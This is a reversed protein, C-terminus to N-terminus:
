IEFTNEITTWHSPLWQLDEPEDIDHLPADIHFSWGLQKIRSLTQTLVRSTSWEIDEFLSLHFKNLGLLTYGGDTAPIIFADLTSLSNAAYRLTTADLAPCDTGIFIVAEGKAIYEQAIRALRAGLDGEGQNAWCTPKPLDVSHWVPHDISPTACITVTGIDATIANTLTYSLLQKALNAAGEAGLKPILRTKAFGAIPAKAFVLLNMKKTNNM